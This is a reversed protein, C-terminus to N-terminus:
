QSFVKRKLFLPLSGRLVNHISGKIEPELPQTKLVLQELYVCYTEKSSQKKLKLYKKFMGKKKNTKLEVQLSEKDLKEIM